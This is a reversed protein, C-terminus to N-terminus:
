RFVAFFACLTSHFANSFFNFLVLIGETRPFGSCLPNKTEAPPALGTDTCRETSCRAYRLSCECLCFGLALTKSVKPKEYFMSSKRFTGFFRSFDGINFNLVVIRVGISVRAGCVSQCIRKGFSSCGILASGMCCRDKSNTIILRKQVMKSLRSKRKTTCRACFLVKTESLRM